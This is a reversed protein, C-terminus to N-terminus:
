KTSFESRRLFLGMKRPKRWAKVFSAKKIYNKNTNEKGYADIYFTLYETNVRRKFKSKPSFHITIREAELGPRLTREDIQFDSREPRVALVYVLDDNEPVYYMVDMIVTDFGEEQVLVEIVFPFNKDEKEIDQTFVARQRNEFEVTVEPARDKVAMYRIGFFFAFLVAVTIMISGLFQNM